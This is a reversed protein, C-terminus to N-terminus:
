SAWEKLKKVDAEEEARRASAERTMKSSSPVDPLKLEPDPLVKNSKIKANEQLEQALLEEMELEELERELEAEDVDQSFSTPNSIANAIEAAVEGQEAVDDLMDHVKDADMNQNAGKMAKAAESMAKLVATNTNASELADRQMEITSLTGDIQQLQKEYRKKRKLAQLAAPKNKKVNKVVVELEKEVRQELYEQKKRLMEEIDRLKQIGESASPTAPSKKSTFMKKM